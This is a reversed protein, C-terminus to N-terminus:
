RSGSCFCFRSRTRARAHTPPSGIASSATLGLPAVALERVFKRGHQQKPRTTNQNREEGAGWHGQLGVSLGRRAAAAPNRQGSSSHHAMLFVNARVEITAASAIDGRSHTPARCTARSPSPAPPANATSDRDAAKRVFRHCQCQAFGGRSPNGEASATSANAYCCTVPARHGKSLSPLLISDGYMWLAGYTGVSYPSALGPWQGLSDRCVTKCAPNSWRTNGHVLLHYTTYPLGQEDQSIRRSSPRYSQTRVRSSELAEAM